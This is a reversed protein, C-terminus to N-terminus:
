VFTYNLENCYVNYSEDLSIKICTIKGGLRLAEALLVGVCELIKENYLINCIFRSKGESLFIAKNLKFNIINLM